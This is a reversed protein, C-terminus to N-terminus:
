STKGFIIIVRRFILFGFLFFFTGDAKLVWACMLGDGEKICSIVCLHYSLTDAQMSPKTPLSGMCSHM